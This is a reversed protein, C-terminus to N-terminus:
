QGHSLPIYSTPFPPPTLYYGRKWKCRYESHNSDYKSIPGFRWCLTYCADNSRQLIIIESPPRSPLSGGGRKHPSCLWHSWFRPSCFISSSFFHPHRTTPPSGFTRYFLAAGKALRGWSAYSTINPNPTGPASTLPTEERKIDEGMRSHGKGVVLPHALPPPANLLTPPPLPSLSWAIPSM